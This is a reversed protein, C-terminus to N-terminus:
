LGRYFFYKSFGNEILYCNLVLEERKLQCWVCDVVKDDM